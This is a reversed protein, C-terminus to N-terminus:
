RSSPQRYDIVRVIGATGDAAGPIADYDIRVPVDQSGCQLLTSGASKGLVSVAKPDTISLQLSQAGTDVELVLGPDCMVHRLRGTVTSSAARRVNGSQAAPTTAPPPVVLLLKRADGIRALWRTRGDDSLRELIRSHTDMRLSAREAELVLRANQDEDRRSTVYARALRESRERLPGETEAYRAVEARMVEEDEMRLGLRKIAAGPTQSTILQSLVARVALAEAVDQNSRGDQQGASVSKGATQASLGLAVIVIAVPTWM